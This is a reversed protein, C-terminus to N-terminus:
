RALLPLGENITTAHHTVGAIWRGLAGNPPNQGGVPQSANGSHGFSWEARLSPLCGDLLDSTVPFEVITYMAVTPQLQYAWHGLTLGMAPLTVDSAAPASGFAISDELSAQSSADLNAPLYEILQTLQSRLEPCNAAGDSLRACSVADFGAMAEWDVEAAVGFKVSHLALGAKTLLTGKAGLSGSLSAAVGVDAMLNAVEGHFIVPSTETVVGAPSLTFSANATFNASAHMHGAASFTTVLSLPMALELRSEFFFSLFPCIAILVDANFPVLVGGGRRRKLLDVSVVEELKSQARLDLEGGVSLEFDIELRNVQVLSAAIAASGEELPSPENEVEVEAQSFPEELDGSAVEASIPTGSSSEASSPTGSAGLEGGEVAVDHSNLQRLPRSRHAASRVKRPSETQHADAQLKALHAQHRSLVGAALADM